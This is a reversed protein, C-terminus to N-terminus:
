NSELLMKIYEIFRKAAPSIEKLSTAAIGIIRHQEPELSLIRVKHPMGQLVLEPIINVGLENEVMAIIAQDDAMEFRNILTVGTEKLVRKIDHNYGSKLTIFSENELQEISIKDQNGLPHNHPLICL